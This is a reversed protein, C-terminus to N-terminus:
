PPAYPWQGDIVVYEKMIATRDAGPVTWLYDLEGLRGMLDSRHVVFGTVKMLIGGTSNTIVLTVIEIPLGSPHSINTAPITVHGPTGTWITKRAQYTGSYDYFMVEINAGKYLTLDATLTVNWADLLTFTANGMMLWVIINWAFEKNDYDEEEMYYADTFAQYSSAAFIRGGGPVDVAAYPIVDSGNFIPVYSPDEAYTGNPVPETDGMGIPVAAGTLNLASGRGASVVTVNYTVFNAIANDAWNYILPWYNNGTNDNNDLIQSDVFEIGYDLTINNQQEPDMYSHHIGMILLSGSKNEIWDKIVETENAIFDAGPDPIVLLKVGELLEKTITGYNYYVAGMEQLLDIFVDYYSPGVYQNHSFDFVTDVGPVAVISEYAPRPTGTNAAEVTLNLQYTGIQNVTINWTVTTENYPQLDGLDVKLAQTSTVGSPLGLTLNVSQTIANRMNAITAHVVSDNSLRMTLFSPSAYFSVIGIHTCNGNNSSGPTGNLPTGEAWGCQALTNDDYAWCEGMGDTFRAISVGPGHETDWGMQDLKVWTDTFLYVNDADNELNFYPAQITWNDAWVVYFGGAPIPEVLPITYNDEGDSIHWGTINVPSSGNNYLEVYEQGGAAPGPLVENLVVGEGGLNPAPADNASGFTPTPDVTWDFADNDTDTGDPARAANFDYEPDPCGGLWSYAVKDVLVPTGTSNDYLYLDDKDNALYLPGQNDPDNVDIVVYGGATINIAPLTMNAEGDGLIWKSLNIESATPNYLEVLEIDTPQVGFENIVLHPNAKLSPADSSGADSPASVKIVSAFPALLVTLLFLATCKVMLGNNGM